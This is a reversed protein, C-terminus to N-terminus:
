RCRVTVTFERGPTGAKGTATLVGNAIKGTLQAVLRQGTHTQQGIGEYRLVVNGAADIRGQV